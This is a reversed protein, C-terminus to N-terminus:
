WKMSQILGYKKQKDMLVGGLIPGVLAGVVWSTSNIGLAVGLQEEPFTKIIIPTIPASALAAGIGQIVRCVILMAGSNSFGCLITGITFIILGWIFIRKTGLIDTWRGSPLLLVTNAIIYTTIVLLANVLTINLGDMIKPLGIIVITSDVNAIFSVLSVTFLIRWKRLNFDIM